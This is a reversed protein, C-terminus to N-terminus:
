RKSELFIASSAEPSPYPKSPRASGSVPRGTVQGEAARKDGRARFSFGAMKANMKEVKETCSESQIFDAIESAESINQSGRLILKQTNEIM